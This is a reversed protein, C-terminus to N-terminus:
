CVFFLLPIIGYKPFLAPPNSSGMKKTVSSKLSSWPVLCLLTLFMQGASKLTTLFTLSIIYIFINRAHLVEHAHKCNNNYDGGVM